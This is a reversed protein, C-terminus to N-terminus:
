KENIEVKVIVGSKKHQMYQRAWLSQRGKSVRSFTPVNKSGNPKPDSTRGEQIARLAKAKKKEEARLLRSQDKADLKLELTM